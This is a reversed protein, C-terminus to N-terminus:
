RTRPLPANVAKLIQNVNVSTEISTRELLNLRAEEDRVHNYLDTIQRAQQEQNARQDPLGAIQKKLDDLGSTVTGRLDAIQEKVAVQLQVGSRTAEETHNNTTVAYTIVFGLATVAAIVTGLNIDANFKLGGGSKESKATDDSM